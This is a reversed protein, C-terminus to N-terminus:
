LKSSQRGGKHRVHHLPLRILPKLVLRCRETSGAAGATPGTLMPLGPKRTAFEPPAICWSGRAFEDENWDHSVIREVVVEGREEPALHMLGAQVSCLDRLRIGNHADPDPGFAVVGTNHAPTLGDGFASVLGKGPSALSTWPLDPGKVDFHIKNCNNVQGQRAAKVKASPLPPEFQISTLVNLPVTCIVAKARWAQGQRSQVTVVGDAERISAVPTSFSYSLQGTSVAHDFIRRHLTSNGSGLRTHLAMHNLGLVSHGGLVWWHIVSFYGIKGVEAGGMQQLIAVLMALENSSLQARIEDLRDQCSMKDLKAVREPSQDTGFAYKWSHRLHDGDANCFLGLVRSYITTEDDHTLQLQERSGPNQRVVWDNELGYLSVERYIHPMQWHVWTGGMEYNFGDISANWTRGGLRDRGELLLSKKGQTSLDRSAVLGAYGAGIVIVDCVADQVLKIRRPSNVVGATPLGDTLGTSPTWTFGESTKKAM